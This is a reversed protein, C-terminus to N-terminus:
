QVNSVPLNWAPKQHGSGLLTLISSYIWGSEAQICIGSVHPTKYCFLIPIILADPQNNLFFDRRSHVTSQVHGSVHFIRKFCLCFFIHGDSSQYTVTRVTLVPCSSSTNDESRGFHVFNEQIQNQGKRWTFNHNIVRVSNRLHKRYSTSNYVVLEPLFTDVNRLM